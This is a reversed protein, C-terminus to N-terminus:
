SKTSRGVPRSLAAHIFTAYNPPETVDRLQYSWWGEIWELSQHTDLGFGQQAAHWGALLEDAADQSTM